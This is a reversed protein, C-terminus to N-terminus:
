RYSIEMNCVFEEVMVMSAKEEEIVELGVVAARGKRRLAPPEKTM